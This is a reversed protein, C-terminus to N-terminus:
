PMASQVTAEVHAGVRQVAEQFCEEDPLLSLVLWAEGEFEYFFGPQALVGCQRLLTESWATDSLIAPLRLVANWGAEVPLV